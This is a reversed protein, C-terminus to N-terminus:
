LGFALRRLPIAGVEFIGQFWLKKYFRSCKDTYVIRQFTERGSTEIPFVEIVSRRAMLLTSIWFSIRTNNGYRSTVLLWPYRMALSLVSAVTLMCDLIKLQLTAVNNWSKLTTIKGSIYPIAPLIIFTFFPALIIKWSIWFNQNMNQGTPEVSM